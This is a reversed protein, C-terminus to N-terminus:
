YVLWKDCKISEICRVLILCNNLVSCAGTARGSSKADYVSYIVINLFLWLDTSDPIMKSETESSHLM